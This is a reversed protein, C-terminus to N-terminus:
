DLRQSRASRSCREFDDDGISFRLHGGSRRGPGDMKKVFMVGKAIYSTHGVVGRFGGRGSGGIRNSLRLAM